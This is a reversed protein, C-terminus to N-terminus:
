LGKESEQKTEWPESKKRVRPLNILNDTHWFLCLKTKQLAQLAKRLAFRVWVKIRKDEM